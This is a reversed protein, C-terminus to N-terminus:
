GLRGRLAGIGRFLALRFRGRRLLVLYARIGGIASREAVYPQQRWGRSPDIEAVKRFAATRGVWEHALEWGPEGALFDRLTMGTWIQLDDVIVLGGVKLSRAAYFWDIFVHPFAHSGDILVLDLTGVDLGPLVQESYDVIFTVQDISISHKDCWAAVRERESGFPSICTHIAGKNAFVVTSLGCGTELTHWGAQLAHDLWRLVDGHLGYTMEAGGALETHVGLEDSLLQDLSTMRISGGHNDDVNRDTVPQSSYLRTRRFGKSGIWAQSVTDFCTRGTM